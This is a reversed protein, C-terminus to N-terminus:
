CICSFYKVKKFDPSEMDNGLLPNKITVKIKNKRQKQINVMDRLSIVTEIQSLQPKAIKIENIRIPDIDASGTERVCFISDRLQEDWVNMRLNDNINALSVCGSFMFSAFTASPM